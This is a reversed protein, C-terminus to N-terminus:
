LMGVMRGPLPEDELAGRLGETRSRAMRGVWLIMRYTSSKLSRSDLVGYLLEELNATSRAAATASRRALFHSLACFLAANMTEGGEFVIGLGTSVDVEIGMGAVGDTLGLMGLAVGVTLSTSGGLEVALRGISFLSGVTDFSFSEGRLSLPFSCSLGRVSGRLSVLRVRAGRETCVLRFDSIPCSM